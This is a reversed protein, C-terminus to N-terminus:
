EDTEGRDHLAEGAKLVSALGNLGAVAYLMLGFFFAFSRAAPIALDWRDFAWIWLFTAAVVFVVSAFGHWIAALAPSLDSGSPGATDTDPSPTSPKRGTPPPPRLPERAPNKM